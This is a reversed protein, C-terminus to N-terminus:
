HEVGIVEERKSEDLIFNRFNASLASKLHFQLEDLANQVKEKGNPLLSEIVLICNKTEDTLKTRDAERWNWRRCIASVSDKYIVEGKLPVEEKEDGLLKVKSENESAFCLEINGVCSDLDEGGVPLAHKLSIFNYIDVLPSIRRIDRGSLILRFLNEVSSKADSPKVGFEKYAKRWVQFAEHETFTEKQFSARIRAEEESLLGSPNIDSAKYSINNVIIAGITTNPFTEFIKDSIILKM